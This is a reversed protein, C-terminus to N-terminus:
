PMNGSPARCGHTQSLTFAFHLLSHNQYNRGVGPRAVRVPIGLKILEEAPGIGSRMLIAPSHLAGASVVVQDAAIEKTAGNHTVRVGRVKTGDFMLHDVRTQDLIALNPRARVSATLYCRASTAREADQSLPLAFFGNGDSAYVDPMSAMGRAEVAREMERMYASWNDRSIRRVVNPGNQNRERQDADLDHTMAKFTPLVDRWGWNRAGAAEWADFDSPLGRLALMGMVSSGGGMVRAQPFPQPLDNAGIASTVGPWFYDRNFFSTPFIDRIDDPVREPPTDYGAEILLVSHASSESLRAAIVAGASGGGVVIIDAKKM